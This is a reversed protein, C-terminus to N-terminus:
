STKKKKIGQRSLRASAVTIQGQAYHTISQLPMTGLGEARRLENPCVASDFFSRQSGKDPAYWWNQDNIVGVHQRFVADHNM